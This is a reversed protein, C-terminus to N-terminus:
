PPVRADVRGGHEETAQRCALPRTVRWGPGLLGGRGRPRRGRGGGERGGRWYYKGEGAGSFRGRVQLPGALSWEAGALLPDDPAVEGTSEVRGARVACLAVRLM